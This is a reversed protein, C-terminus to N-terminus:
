NETFLVYFPIVFNQTCFTSFPPFNQDSYTLTSQNHKDTDEEEYTLVNTYEHVNEHPTNQYESPAWRKQYDDGKKVSKKM